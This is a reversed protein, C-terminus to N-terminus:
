RLAVGGHNKVPRGVRGKLGLVRFRHLLASKSVGFQQAVDAVRLGSMHLAHAERVQDDTIITRAGRLTNERITVPELDSPKVCRPIRCRHDIPLGDPIPGNALEYSYRHAYVRTKTDVRFIGYGSASTGATWLWHEGSKDVKSWFRDEISTNTV